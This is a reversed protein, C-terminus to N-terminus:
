CPESCPPLASQCLPFGVNDWGDYAWLGAYLAVAWGATEMKTDEFWGRDKWDHNPQGNFTYGTAAVVIGTVTVGVLAIFKMFMLLDNIRTGLRTSVANIFTVVVLGVLASKM